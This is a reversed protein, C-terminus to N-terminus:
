FKLTISGMATFGASPVYGIQYYRNDNPHGGSAYIASYVWGSQAFHSDFINNLNAGFVIEKLFKKVPLTYNVNFNSVSYGPLSRDKCETNDLYMRSVYGTHWTATWGKMHFNVFGNLIASPSFALTSNDYHITQSGNDWDEVVEDFDKIKNQSLAANGEISLWPTIDVGATLEIGMRYSDKINTTLAEGIDSQAGTQVFQDTYDMYYLTAGARWNQATYSYGLEFDLLSEAKPAPYSGNDTFNNREPERHSLAASFFARHGDQHFSVGAKPNFFDYKNDIELFQKKMEGTNEDEYFKDNYGDTKYGVHRYQIDAFVDWSDTIRYLAKVFASADLKHADSDYYKYDGNSMLHRRLEENKIYTLYGFHNGDFQQISLGGIIDWDQDKYNVNGVLGYTDQTLGKQRVFDTKKLTSGDALTYNNLGFKKLKNNLRFEKYYGYGHTYHLSATTSWHDNIDWAASLINHNQWFNDTTKDWLSGDAMTYRQTVYNGNADKMFNGDADYALTEYLTNYKGLGVKYLDEYEKIGTKMGYTGDMLSMDNDGATIGNWAQGTKEFNGINKYRITFKDDIWTLGGYYSGSRGSTGHIYGDTNTEHYAGDFILHNWLLGTSFAGGVNFTNYSGYSFNVEGGAKESPTKSSLAVTGGFAGDGNTSTGVGRQIQVGGLLSSYSNMNAWFVAQDEPSNLPVGDLTVNIRSDGAGRIRLYSTGTGLGNEGWALVGPTQSFLFPLEKGTKSFKQLEDKKINAVAFPANKQVWVGKVVVEQLQEMRLSDGDAENAANVATVSMGLLAAMVIKKNM